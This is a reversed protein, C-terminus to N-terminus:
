ARNDDGVTRAIMDTWQTEDNSGGGASGGGATQILSLERWRALGDVIGWCSGTGGADGAEKATGRGGRGGLEGRRRRGCAGGGM